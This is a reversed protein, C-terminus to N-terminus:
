CPKLKFDALLAVTCKSQAVLKPLKITAHACVVEGVNKDVTWRREIQESDVRHGGRVRNKNRQLAFEESHLSQRLEQFCNLLYLGCEIRGQLNM